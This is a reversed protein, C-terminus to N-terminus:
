QASSRALPQPLRGVECCFANFQADWSTSPDEIQRLGDDGIRYVLYGKQNLLSLLSAASHGMKQLYADTVEVVIYPMDRSILAAMGEVVHQEAGEVDLKILKVRGLVPLWDDLRKVAVSHTAAAQDLPRLSSLGRHNRPGEYMTLTGVANSLAVGHLSVWRVGNLKINRELAARVAPIPEFALVRGSEKVRTAALLTFFGANAGIDIVTDGPQILGAILRATPPEYGGTLYIYQGLWDALDLRMRFGYRTRITKQGMTKGFHRLLPLFHHHLRWRGKEIPTHRLYAAVIPLLQREFLTTATLM